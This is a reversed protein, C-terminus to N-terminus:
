LYSMYYVEVYVMIKQLRQYLVHHPLVDGVGDMLGFIPKLSNQFEHNELESFQFGGLKGGGFGRVSMCM